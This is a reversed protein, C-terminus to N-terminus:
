LGGRNGRERKRLVMASFVLLLPLSLSAWTSLTPISTVSGDPSGPPGSPPASPPVTPTPLPPEPDVQTNEDDSNDDPDPDNEDGAVVVNNSATGVVTPTIVIQIIVSNGTMVTGLSCSVAGGAENCVGQDPTASEFVAGAPLTDTVVVNTADDPGINTVTVTYTLMQNVIVPDPSGTKTISLNASPEGTGEVTTSQTDSNDSPDPDPQDGAVVATNLIAGAETPTVEIMVTANGGNTITGLNCTVTNGVNGCSGQSPTITSLALSGPLTDTVTVGTADAPGGNMVTLTYTLTNGVTVPDPNDEKVISLNAEGIVEDCLVQAQSQAIIIDGSLTGLLSLITDSLDIHIANVTIGSSNVGDGSVIQENLIVRIGLLDLLVTNPAPSADINLGVGLTGGVAANEITTTGTATLGSVGCEGSVDATSQVTDATISLLTLTSVVFAGLDDVTADSSTMDNSLDGDANVTLVGTSLINGLPATSVSASAVTDSDTYTNPDVASGSATSLPGLDIDVGGGLLPLFNLDVFAGYSSSNGNTQANALNSFSLLLVVGLVLTVLINRVPNLRIKVHLFKKMM